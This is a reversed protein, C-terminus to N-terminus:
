KGTINYDYPLAALSRFVRLFLYTRSFPALGGTLPVTGRRSLVSVRTIYVVCSYITSSPSPVNLRFDRIFLGPKTGWLKSGALSELLVDGRIPELRSKKDVYYSTTQARYSFSRLEGLCFVLAIYM